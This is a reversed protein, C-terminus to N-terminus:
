FFNYGDSTVLWFIEFVVFIMVGVLLADKFFEKM